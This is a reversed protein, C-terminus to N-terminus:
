EGGAGPNRKDGPAHKDGIVITESIKKRVFQVQCLGIIIFSFCLLELTFIDVVNSTGLPVFPIPIAMFVVAMLWFRWEKKLFTAALAFSGGLLISSIIVNGALNSNIFFTLVALLVLWCIFFATLVYGIRSSM